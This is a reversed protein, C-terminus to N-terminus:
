KTSDQIYKLGSETILHFWKTQSNEGERGSFVLYEKNVLITVLTKADGIDIVEGSMRIGSDNGRLSQLFENQYDHPTNTRYNECFLCLAVWEMEEDTPTNM